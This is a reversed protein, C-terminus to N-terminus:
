IAQWLSQKTKNVFLVAMKVAVLTGLHKVYGVHDIKM